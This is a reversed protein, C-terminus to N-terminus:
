GCAHTSLHLRDPRLVPEARSVGGLERTAVHHNLNHESLHLLEPRLVPEARSDGGLERTAVHHNLNHKSSRVTGSSTGTRGTFRQM